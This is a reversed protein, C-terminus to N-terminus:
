FEYDVAAREERISDVFDHLEKHPPFQAWAKLSDLNDFEM